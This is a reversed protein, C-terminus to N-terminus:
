DHLGVLPAEGEDVGHSVLLLLVALNDAGGTADLEVVDDVVLKVDGALVVDVVGLALDCDEIRDGFLDKLLFAGGEGLLRLDM